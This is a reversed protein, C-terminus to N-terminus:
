RAPFAMFRIISWTGGAQKQFVDMGAEQSTKLHKGQKIRLTWLVRAVALDGSVLIEQISLSYQMRKNPKALQIALRACVADHDAQLSGPVTSVLDKAFIDCTGAADRHNFASVWHQLLDSIMAKDADIDAWAPPIVGGLGLLMISLGTKNM